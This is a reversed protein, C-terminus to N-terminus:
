AELPARSINKNAYFILKSWFWSTEVVNWGYAAPPATEHIIIAGVAGQRAAAEFKHTWRGYYTM